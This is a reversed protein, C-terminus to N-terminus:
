VCSAGGRGEPLLTAAARDWEATLDFSQESQLWNLRLGDLLVLLQRATVRPEDVFPTVLRTFLNFTAAQRRKVSAHAPHSSDLAEVNLRVYLRSLDASANSRAQIAHLLALVSDRSPRTESDRIVAEALPVLAKIESRELEDLLSVLLDDKSEFYYLLGGNTLGCRQALEQLSFGHCGREGIIRIAAQRIQERRVDPAERTRKRVAQPMAVIM